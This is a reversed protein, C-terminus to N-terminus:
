SDIGRAIRDARRLTGLRLCAAVTRQATDRLAVWNEATPRTKMGHHAVEVLQKALGVQIVLAMGETVEGLPVEELDSWRAMLDKGLAECEAATAAIQVELPEDTM